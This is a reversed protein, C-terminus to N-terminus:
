INGLKKKAWMIAGAMDSFEEDMQASFSERIIKGLDPGPKMGIKILAEGNLIAKPKSDEIELESAISMIARMQPPLGAPKPVRASNDSEVVYSLHKLNGVDSALNRVNKRTPNQLGIHRMHNAVLIKIMGVFHDPKKQDPNVRGIRNMFSTILPLGSQDHGPSKISGQPDVITTNIKGDDHNLATFVLMAREEGKIGERICIEAMRDVAQLIHTFVDGIKVTYNHISINSNMSILDNHDWIDSEACFDFCIIVDGDIPTSRTDVIVSTIKISGPGVVLAAHTDMSDDHFEINTSGKFSPLMNMMFITVPKIVANIIEFDNISTDVIRKMSASSIKFMVRQIKNTIFTSTGFMCVLTKPQTIVTVSSEFAPLIDLNRTQTASFFSVMNGGVIPETSFTRSLIESMTRFTPTRSTLEGLPVGISMDHNAAQNSCTISTELTHLFTLSWGEPHHRSDQWCGILDNIEPYLNLWGANLLFELGLSPKDSRSAWKFWEEWVRERSITPYYKALGSMMANYRSPMNFDMGALWMGRLVRLPDDKFQASTPRLIKHEVDHVFGYHDILIDAIPDYMGSNITFDRRAAADFTTMDKYTEVRVDTHLPGTKWERRPMSLDYEVTPSTRLKIVKFHSGVLSISGLHSVANIIQDSNLGYIELDYDNIDKGMFFNRVSGGVVYVATAKANKLSDIVSILEKTIPFNKGNLHM